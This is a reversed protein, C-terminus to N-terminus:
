NKKSLTTCIKKPFFLSKKSFESKKTSVYVKKFYSIKKFHLNKNFKREYIQNKLEKRIDM